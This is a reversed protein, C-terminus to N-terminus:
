VFAQEFLPDQSLETGRSPGLSNWFQSIATLFELWADTHKTEMHNILVGAKVVYLGKDFSRTYWKVTALAPISRGQPLINIGVNLQKDDLLLYQAMRISDEGGPIFFRGREFQTQIPIIISLGQPSITDTEVSVPPPPVPNLVLQITLPIAVHVRKGGRREPFPIKKTKTIPIASPRWM